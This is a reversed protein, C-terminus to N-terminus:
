VPPLGLHIKKYINIYKYLYKNIYGIYVYTCVYIYYTYLCIYLCIYLVGRGGGYGYGYIGGAIPISPHIYACAWVCIYHTYLVVGMGVYVYGGM